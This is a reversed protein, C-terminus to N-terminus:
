PVTEGRPLAQWWHWGRQDCIRPQSRPESVLWLDDTVELFGPALLRAWSVEEKSRM